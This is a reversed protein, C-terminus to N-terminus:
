RKVQKEKGEKVKEWGGGPKRNRYGEGSIEGVVVVEM